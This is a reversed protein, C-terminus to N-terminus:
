EASKEKTKAQKAKEEAKEEAKAKENEEQQKKEAEVTDNFMKNITAKLENTEREAAELGRYALVLLDKISLEKM